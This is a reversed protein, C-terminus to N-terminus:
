CLLNYHWPRPRLDQYVSSKGARNDPGSFVKEVISATRMPGHALRLERLTRCPASCWAYSMGTRQSKPPNGAASARLETRDGLGTGPPALLPAAMLVASLGGGDDETPTGNGQRGSCDPPPLPGSAFTKRSRSAEVQAAHHDDGDVVGMTRKDSDREEGAAPPNPTLLSIEEASSGGM